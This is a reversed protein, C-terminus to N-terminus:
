AFCIDLKWSTLSTKPCLETIGDHKDANSQKSPAQNNWVEQLLETTVVEILHDFGKYTKNQLIKCQYSKWLKLQIMM